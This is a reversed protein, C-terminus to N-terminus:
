RGLRGGGRNVVDCCVRAGWEGPVDSDFEWLTRGSVADYARVNSWATTVYIVGDVMVPTSEQGRPVNLDAYWALGLDDVNETDVSNLPSFHQEWYNRGVALWQDPENDAGTLRRENVNGYVPGEASEAASADNDGTPPNCGALFCVLLGAM